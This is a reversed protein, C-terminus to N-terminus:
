LLRTEGIDLIWLRAPDLGREAFCRRLREPPEGLPEDTLKFTGWHMAVLQRAELREFAQVADEPNMHQPEMFWRPEYAGIPLLAWDIPGLRQGIETFGDFLATDGSHYAVGEPGRYVFGGWLMDNRNWPARMSWHRAPVATIELTGVRHSEWWDLEVIKDLGGKRLLAGNGPLTIYLTDKGIRGLTPMDLHDYHNHSVTVVDLAPVKELAVGPPAKRPIIGSIRQCWVPDTAILMGGLRLVFTAHGIWTLSPAATALQAGDNERVPTTYGGPDQVRRGAISDLVRWRFIDAPGRQPRTARDEFRGAM